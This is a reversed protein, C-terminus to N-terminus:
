IVLLLAQQLDDPQDLGAKNCGSLMAAINEQRYMVSTVREQYLGLLNISM